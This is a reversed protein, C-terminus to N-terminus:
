FWRKLLELKIKAELYDLIDKYKKNNRVKDPFNLIKKDIELLKKYSVKPILKKFKPIVKWFKSNKLKLKSVILQKIFKSKANVIFSNKIIKFTSCDIKIPKENINWYCWNKDKWIKDKIIVFTKADINKAINLRLNSFYYVNNKDKSIYLDIVNFTKPDIIYKWVESIRNHLFDSIFVKDKDKVLFINLIRFTQPDVWEIKKCAFYVNNKDKIFMTNTSQWYKNPQPLNNILSLEWINNLDFEEQKMYKCIKNYEKMFMNFHDKTIIQNYMIGKSINKYSKSNLLKITDCNTFDRLGKTFDWNSYDKYINILKEKDYKKLSCVRKVWNTYERILVINNWNYKLSLINNRISITDKWKVEIWNNVANIFCNYFEKEEWKCTNNAYVNGLLLVWIILVLSLIIIKM